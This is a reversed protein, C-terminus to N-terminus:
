IRYDCVVVDYDGTELYREVTATFLADWGKNENASMGFWGLDGSAQWGKAPLLLSYTVFTGPEKLLATAWRSADWEDAVVELPRYYDWQAHPNYHSYYVGAGRCAECDAVPTLPVAAEAERIAALLEAAPPYATWEPCETEPIAWFATRIADLGGAAM